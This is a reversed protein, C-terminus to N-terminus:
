QAEINPYAATQASSITYEVIFNTYIGKPVRPQAATFGATSAM